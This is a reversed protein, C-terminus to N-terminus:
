ISRSVDKQKQVKRRPEKPYWRSEEQFSSDYTGEFYTAIRFVSCLCPCQSRSRQQLISQTLNVSTLTNVYVEYPPFDIKPVPTQKTEIPAETVTSEVEMKSEVVSGEEFNQEKAESASEAEVASAEEKSEEVASEEEKHEPVIDMTEVESEAASEALSESVSSPEVQSGEEIDSKEGKVSGENAGNLHEEHYKRLKEKM